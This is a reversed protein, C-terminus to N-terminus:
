DKFWKQGFRDIEAVVLKLDQGKDSLSYVVKPPICEYQTRIVVGDEELKKLRTSLTSSTIESLLEEIENFRKEGALLERIILISWFDGIVETAAGM